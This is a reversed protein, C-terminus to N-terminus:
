LQTLEPLNAMKRIENVFQLSEEVSMDSDELKITQPFAKSDSSKEAILMQAFDTINQKQVREQIKKYSGELQEKATNKAIHQIPHYDEYANFQEPFIQSYVEPEIQSTHSSSHKNESKLTEPDVGKSLLQQEKKLQGLAQAEILDKDEPMEELINLEYDQQEAEQLSDQLRQSIESSSPEQGKVYIHGTEINIAMKTRQNLDEQLTKLSQKDSPKISGVYPLLAMERALRIARAVRKQQNKSLRNQKHNKINSAANMFQSILETNRWHIDYYNIQRQNRKRKEAESLPMHHVKRDPKMFEKLYSETQSSYESFYQDPNFNNWNSHELNSEDKLKDFKPLKQASRAQSPDPGIDQRLAMEIVKKVTFEEGPKIMMERALKNTKIFQFFPDQSLPIGKRGDDYLIEERSLQSDELQQMKEEILIHIEDKQEQKMWKLPGQPSKYGELYQKYNNHEQEEQPMHQPVRQEMTLSKMFDLTEEKQNLTTKPKKNKFQPHAQDFYPNNLLEHELIKLNEKYQQKKDAKDNQSTFQYIQKLQTIKNESKLLQIKSLLNKALM